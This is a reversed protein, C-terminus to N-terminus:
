HGTCQTHNIHIFKPGSHVITHKTSNKCMIAQQQFNHVQSIVIIIIIDDNRQLCQKHHPINQMCHHFYYKLPRPVTTFMALASPSGIGPAVSTKWRWPLRKVNQRKVFRIIIIIIITDPPLTHDQPLAGPWPTQPCLGGSAPPLQYQLIQRQFCSQFQFSLDISSNIECINPFTDIVGTHRHRFHDHSAPHPRQVSLV